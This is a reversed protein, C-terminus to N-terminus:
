EEYGISWIALVEVMKPSLTTTKYESKCAWCKGLWMAGVPIVRGDMNVKIVAIDGKSPTSVKPFNIFKDVTGVPDKFFGTERQCSGMSDYTYMIHEAPHFGKVREVWECLSLMCDSYGWVFEKSSWEHVQQYIPTM